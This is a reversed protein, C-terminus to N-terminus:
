MFVSRYKGSLVSPGLTNDCGARSRGVAGAIVL